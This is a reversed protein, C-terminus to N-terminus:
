TESIHITRLQSKELLVRMHRLQRQLQREPEQTLVQIFKIQIIINIVSITIVIIVSNIQKTHKLCIVAQRLTIM